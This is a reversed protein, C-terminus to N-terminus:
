NFDISRRTIHSNTLNVGITHNADHSSDIRSMQDGGLSDLVFDKSGLVDM